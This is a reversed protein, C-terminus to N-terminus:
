HNFIDAPKPSTARTTQGTFERESMHGLYAFNTFVFDKVDNKTVGMEAQLRDLLTEKAADLTPLTIRHEEVAVVQNMQRQKNTNERVYSITATALYTHMRGAAAM